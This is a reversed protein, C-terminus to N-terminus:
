CSLAKVHISLNSCFSVNQYDLIIGVNDLSIVSVVWRDLELCIHFVFYKYNSESDCLYTMILRPDIVEGLTPPRVNKSWPWNELITLEQGIKSLGHYHRRNGHCCNSGNYLIPCTQWNCWCEYWWLMSAVQCIMGTKVNTEDLQICSVDCFQYFYSWSWPWLIYLSMNWLFPCLQLVLWWLSKWSVGFTKRNLERNCLGHITLSWEFHQLNFMKPRKLDIKWFTTCLSTLPSCVFVATWYRLLRPSVISTVDM